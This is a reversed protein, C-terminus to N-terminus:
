WGHRCPWSMSGFLSLAFVVFLAMIGLNLWPDAAFRNLGSAGFGVAITFGVATFTLVIGLGYVLAQIVADRRSRGARKTFYSVTIPVMPFVCPTLLSLAGMVVALSLYGLLTNAGASAAAMDPVRAGPAPDPSRHRPFQRESIASLWGASDWYVCRAGTRRGETASLSSRQLDSLHRYNGAPARRRQYVSRTSRCLSVAREEYFLTELNFNPDHPRRPSGPVSKAPWVSPGAPRFLLSWRCLGVPLSTVAYLHWTPDIQATLEVDFPQGSPPYGQGYAGGVLSDSGAGGGDVGDRVVLFLMLGIFAKRYGGFQHRHPMADDLCLFSRRCLLPNRPIVCLRLNRSKPNSISYEDLKLIEGRGAWTLGLINNGSVAPPTPRLGPITKRESFYCM